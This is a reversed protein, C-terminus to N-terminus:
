LAERDLASCECRCPNDYDPPSREADGVTLAPLRRAPRPEDGPGHGADDPGRDGPGGSGPPLRADARRGAGGPPAAPCPDARSLTRDLSVGPGDPGTGAPPDPGIGSPARQLFRKRSPRHRGPDVAAN